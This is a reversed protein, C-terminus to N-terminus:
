YNTKTNYIYFGQKNKKRNIKNKKAENNLLSYFYNEQYVSDHVGISDNFRKIALLIQNGKSHLSNPDEQNENFFEYVHSVWYEETTDFKNFVQKQILEKYNEPKKFALSQARFLWNATATKVGTERAYRFLRKIRSEMIESEM